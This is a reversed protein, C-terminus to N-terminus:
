VVPRLSVARLGCKGRDVKYKPVVLDAEPEGHDKRLVQKTISQVKREAKALFNAHAQGLTALFALDYEHALAITRGFVGGYLLCLDVLLDHLIFPAPLIPADLDVTM